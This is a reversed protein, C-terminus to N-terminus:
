MFDLLALESGWDMMDSAAPAAWPEAKTASALSCVSHHPSCDDVWSGLHSIVRGTGPVPVALAETSPLCFGASLLSDEPSEPLPSSCLLAAAQPAPSPPHSPTNNLLESM